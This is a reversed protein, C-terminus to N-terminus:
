GVNEYRPDYMQARVFTALDDPSATTALDTEYAVRAVATAISASVERIRQLPPFLAGQTLDTPDLAAALTRAAALLMGDTVRRAGCCIVGLGIGPFVYANNAQRPVFTRGAQTVPAFPSGSAFLARGDSWAYAQEATCESKTTPNSLAFIVPRDNLAAMTEIVPRTFTQPQGSVGILISPKLASVASALDPLWAHDHAYPKKHEALDQRSGVVLGRSDVFWCRQRGQAVPLGESQMAAALMDAIGIGAEGAGLFLITQDRLRRSRLLPLTAYLGALCVAATGQIDDNFCCARDRHARLIRFANRNGFDEFQVLARPFRAAVARMFEEILADYAPEALRRHPSGVYLPDNLLQENETGVDLTVPLCWEPDVGACATYLSLKGIPICMGGAGLDGLGLIREGDTVVIVRVERHPWNRMVRAVRGRDEVAIFLGRARRWIHGFVQCALGVTPTYIIPMMEDIYDVVVRYFLRENRDQLSTLYVYKELDSSKSRFNELVKAVQQEQTLIRPPLLGRLKLRDREADTFATGKNHVPDNLLKVGTVPRHRSPTPM